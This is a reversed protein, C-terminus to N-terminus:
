HVFHSYARFHKMNILKCHVSEGHGCAGIASGIGIQMYVVGIDVRFRRYDINYGVYSTPHM